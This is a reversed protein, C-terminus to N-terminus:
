SNKSFQQGPPFIRPGDAFGGHVTGALRWMEFREDRKYWMSIGNHTKRHYISLETFDQGKSIEIAYINWFVLTTIFITGGIVFLKNKM